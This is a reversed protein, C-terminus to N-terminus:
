MRRRPSDGASASSKVWPNKALSSLSLESASTRRAIATVAHGNRKPPLRSDSSPAPFATAANATAAATNAAGSIPPSLVPETTRM